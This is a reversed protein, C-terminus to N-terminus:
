ACLGDADERPGCRFYFLYLVHDAATLLNQPPPMVHRVEARSVQRCARASPHDAGSIAAHERVPPADSHPCVGTRSMISGMRLRYRRNRARGAGQRLHQM